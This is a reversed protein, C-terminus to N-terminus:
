LGWRSEERTDVSSRKWGWPSGLSGDFWIGDLSSLSRVFVLVLTLTPGPGKTLGSPSVDGLNVSLSTLVINRISM